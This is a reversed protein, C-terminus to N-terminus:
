VVLLHKKDKTIQSCVRLVCVCASMKAICGAGQLRAGACGKTHMLNSAPCETCGLLGAFGMNIHKHNFVFFLFFFLPLPIFIYDGCEGM